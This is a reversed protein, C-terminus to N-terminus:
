CEASVLSFQPTGSGAVQFQAASYNAGPVLGHVPAVYHSAITESQTVQNTAELEIGILAVDLTASIASNPGDNTVYIEYRTHRVGESIWSTVGLPEIALSCPLTM